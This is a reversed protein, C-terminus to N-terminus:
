MYKRKNERFVAKSIASKESDTWQYCEIYEQYNDLTISAANIIMAFTESYFETKIMDQFSTEIEKPYNRFCLIAIRRVWPHEDQLGWKIYEKYKEFYEQENEFYEFISVRREVSPIDKASELEKIIKANKYNPM